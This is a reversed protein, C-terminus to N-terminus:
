SHNFLELVLVNPLELLIGVWLQTDKLEVNFSINQVSAIFLTMESSFDPSQEEICFWRVIAQGLVLGKVEQSSRIAEDM